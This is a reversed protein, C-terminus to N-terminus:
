LKELIRLTRIAEEVGGLSAALKKAAFLKDVALQKSDSKARAGRTTKAGRRGKGKVAYVLGPAVEVGKEALGAVIAATKARKHTSIYDRIAQSKSVEGKKTRAM